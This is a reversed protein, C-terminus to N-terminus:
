SIYIYICVHYVCLFQITRFYEHLKSYHRAFSSPLSFIVYILLLDGTIDTEEKARKHGIFKNMCHGFIQKVKHPLLVSIKCILLLTFSFQRASAVWTVVAKVPLAVSVEWHKILIIWVAEKLLNKRVLIFSAGDKQAVETQSLFRLWNEGLPHLSSPTYCPLPQVAMATHHGGCPQHFM